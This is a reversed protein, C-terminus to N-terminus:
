WFAFMTARRNTSKIGAPPFDLFALKEAGVAQEPLVFRLMPQTLKIMDDVIDIICTYPTLHSLSLVLLSFHQQSTLTIRM